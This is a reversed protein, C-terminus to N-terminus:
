EVLTWDDIEESFVLNEKLQEVDEKDILHEIILDMLKIQSIMQRNEDM